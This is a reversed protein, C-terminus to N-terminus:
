KLGLGPSKLRASPSPPPTHISKRVTVEEKAGGRRLSASTYMSRVCMCTRHSLHLDRHLRSNNTAGFWCSSTAEAHARYRLLCPPVLRPKSPEHNSVRRSFLGMCPRSSFSLPSEHVTELFCYRRVSFMSMRYLLPFTKGSVGCCSGRVPHRTLCLVLPGSTRHDASPTPIGSPRV